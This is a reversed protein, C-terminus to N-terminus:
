FDSDRSYVAPWKSLFDDYCDDCCAIDATFWSELEHYFIECFCDILESENLDNFTEDKPMTRDGM